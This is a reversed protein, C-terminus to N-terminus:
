PSANVPSELSSFLLGFINQTILIMLVAGMIRLVSLDGHNVKTEQTYDWSTTNRKTLSFYSIIPCIFVFPFIILGCGRFCVNFSRLLASKPRIRKGKADSIKTNLIWKGLTTSFCSLILTETIVWSICIVSTITVLTIMSPQSTQNQELLNQLAEPGMYINLKDEGFYARLFILGPLILIPFDIVRAWLRIWPRPGHVKEASYAQDITEREKETVIITEHSADALTVEMSERFPDCDRLPKWEEMGRIWAMCDANIKGSRLSERVEYISLPGIKQGKIHLHIEM